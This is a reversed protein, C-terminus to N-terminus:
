RLSDDGWVKFMDFPTLDPNQEFFDTGSREPLEKMAEEDSISISSSVRLLAAVDNRFNKMTKNHLTFWHDPDGHNTAIGKKGAEAHSLIDNATLDYTKCLYASYVTANKWVKNFYAQQQSVNYGTIINNDYKFGSPECIEFDIYTQNCPSGAHWAIQEFPLYQYVGDDDLFAHVAVNTGPKNWVSYWSDATAGPTATSHVVLGDIATFDNTFNYADNKTMIQKTVRLTNGAINLTQTTTEDSVTVKCKATLGNSAKVTVTSTGPHFAKIKGSNTMKLVTYGTGDTSLAGDLSYSFTINGMQNSPTIVANLDTRDGCHLTLTSPVSLEIPANNTAYRQIAVADSMTIQGDKNFDAYKKATENFSKNGAIYKLIYLSDIATVKYDGNVDGLPREEAAATLTGTAIATVAIAAAIIKKVTINM